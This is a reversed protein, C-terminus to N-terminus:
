FTELFLSVNQPVKKVNESNELLNFVSRPGPCYAYSSSSNNNENM